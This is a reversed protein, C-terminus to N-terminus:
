AVRRVREVGYNARVIAEAIPPCVSNGCMRVQAGKSLPKGCYEVEIRYSDPFGQARYLERPSLMRMGIDAIEYEEGHVTVLGISDKTVVTPMPDNLRNWQGGNTHYKMLFARVKKSGEPALQTTVLAQTCGKGVITSVPETMHHGVVDTNHQAMFAAVLSAGNQTPVITPMPANAPLARPAQTPREGYRPVLVPAVLGFRNEATQTPLPATLSAVRDDGVRKASHNSVLFPEAADLVYRQIGAAIRRMTAEALPRKVDLGLKKAEAQTMFISPCPISWDICEARHAM